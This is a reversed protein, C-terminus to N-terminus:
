KLRHRLLLSLLYLPRSIKGIRNKRQLYFWYHLECLMEACQTSRSKNGDSLRNFQMIFETKMSLAHADEGKEGRRGTLSDIEDIFIFSPAYYRAIEFVLRIIKESDGKWKSILSSPSLRFFNM